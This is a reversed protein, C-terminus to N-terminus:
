SFNVSVRLQEPQLQPLAVDVQAPVIDKTEDHVPRGKSYVETEPQAIGAPPWSMEVLWQALYVGFGVPVQVSDADVSVPM